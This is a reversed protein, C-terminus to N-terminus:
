SVIESALSELQVRKTEPYFFLVAFFQLAMLFAFIAFVKEHLLTVIWPFIGVVLANTVWHVTSALSQGRARVPLPFIESVYVWIVVGQSFGFCANYGALIFVATSAPWHMLRVLPFLGLCAGMGVTGALLLPKRGIKDIVGVALMTVVLSLTSVLIADKRGNLRGLGFDDFVDLIYYLLANVGTLQNFVAISVALLIPRMYQRTFLTPSGTTKFNALSAALQAQEAEPHDSGLGEFVSRVEGFRGKIALWRPSPSSRLLLVGCLLAPLAGAGLSYRWGRDLPLHISFLYGAAFAAVVGISLSFQFAGVIRGRLAAPSVEALYMPASVSILGIAFGCLLRSVVFPALGSASASGAIGLLYVSVSLLLTTSRDMSDALFGTTISGAVTGILASSVALGLTAASLSFHVELGPAASSMAGIDYGFLLGSLSGALVTIALRRNM